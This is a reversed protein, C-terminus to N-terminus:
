HSSAPKTVVIERAMQGQPGPAYSVTVADGQQLAALQATKGLRYAGLALGYCGISLVGALM